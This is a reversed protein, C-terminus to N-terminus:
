IQECIKEQSNELGKIGDASSFVSPRPFQLSPPTKTLFCAALIIRFEEISFPLAALCGLSNIENFLLVYILVYFGCNISDDSHQAPLSQVLPCPQLVFKSLGFTNSFLAIIKQASAIDEPTPQQPHYPNIVWYSLKPLSLSILTWHTNTINAPILFNEALLQEKEYLNSNMLANRLYAVSDFNDTLSYTFLTPSLIIHKSLGSDNQVSGMSQHLLEWTM